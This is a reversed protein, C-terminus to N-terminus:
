NKVKHRVATVEAMVSIAIEAPTKSSIQLGIPAHLRAIEAASLGLEPLRERRAASTRESGMAGIYFAETKLAEMLAMDDVRPDHALAIIGSYPNNFSERVVDDPLRSITEVGDVHWNDLYNPRPDCLMVDYELALAMEAVYRAVDGAGLLLLRYMPSLSHAMSDEDLVVAEDSSNPSASIQGNGLDVIRSVSKHQELDTKLRDFIDRNSENSEIYELLVHLQGGCPLKLRAQEEATVGYKVVFPKQMEDFQSKLSGDRLQELFDEEICGGSISGVLEGEVTCAMMAGVPRPSSGWTKLITCLWVSKQDGLWTSVHSIIHQQSSLM